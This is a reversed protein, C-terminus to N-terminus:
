GPDSRADELSAPEAEGEGKAVMHARLESLPVHKWSHLAKVGPLTWEPDFCAGVGIRFDLSARLHESTNPPAYHHRLAGHFCAIEGYDVDLPHYDAADPASEVCLTTRTLAYSTLPLWCNIEGPQHGYEADRHIRGHQTSLGPQLRLSPPCQYYFGAQPMTGNAASGSDDDDDRGSSFSTLMKLLAPLVVDMVLREYAHLLRADDAVARYVAQRAKFSRFVDTRAQFAEIRLDQQGCERSSGSHASSEDSPQAACELPFSGVSPLSALLSAVINYLEYLETRFALTHEQRLVEPLEAAVRPAAAALLTREGKTLASTTSGATSGPM